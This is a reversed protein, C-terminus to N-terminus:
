DINKKLFKLKYTGYFFTICSCLLFNFCFLPIKYYRTDSFLLMRMMMMLLKGDGDGGGDMQWCEFRDCAPLAKVCNGCLGPSALPQSQM